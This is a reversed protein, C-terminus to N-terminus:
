ADPPKKEYYDVAPEAVDYTAYPSEQSPCWRAHLVMPYDPSGCDNCPPRLARIAPLIERQVVEHPSYPRAHDSIGLAAMIKVMDAHVLAREDPTVVLWLEALLLRPRAAAM